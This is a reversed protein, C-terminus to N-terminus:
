RQRVKKYLSSANEADRLLDYIRATAILIRCERPHSERNALFLVLEFVADFCYGRGEVTCVETAPLRFKNPM